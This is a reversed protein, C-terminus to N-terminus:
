RWLAEVVRETDMVGAPVPAGLARLEAALVGISPLGLGSRELLTADELLGPPPGEYLVAGGELSLVRDARAISAADHSIHVVGHGHEHALSDVLDLVAKRGAPDLMATPEDLVMFSPRMALAGAIAVRQKQGESLLHPERRELGTLGVAALAADVGARMEGREVGLNSPGFAVDEEVVTGVIQDDPDQFVMGVRARIARVTADSIAVGEVAVSGEAPRLVGNLHLLLTSKGAGNPGLLGIVGPTFEIDFDRLGWFDSRYQKSLHSISLKM